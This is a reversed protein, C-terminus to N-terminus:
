DMRADNFDSFEVSSSRSLLNVNFDYTKYYYKLDKLL